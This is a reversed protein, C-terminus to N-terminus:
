NKEPRLSGALSLLARRVVVILYSLVGFHKLIIAPFAERFVMDPNRASFGDASYQAICGKYKTTKLGPLGSFVINVYHDAQAAYQVPFLGIENVFRERKYFIGQHCWNRWVLWSRPFYNKFVGDNGWYVDSLILDSEQEIGQRIAEAAAELMFDDQGIFYLYNGTANNVGTNMAAYIGSGHQPVIRVNVEAPEPFDNGGPVVVIIEYRLKGLLASKISHICRYYDDNSKLAPLIISVDSTTRVMAQPNGTDM